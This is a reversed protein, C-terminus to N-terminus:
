LSLHGYQNGVWCPLLLLFVNDMRKKLYAFWSIFQGNVNAFTMKNAPQDRDVVSTGDLISAELFMNLCKQYSLKCKVTSQLYVIATNVVYVWM